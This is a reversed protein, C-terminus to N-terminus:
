DLKVLYTRDIFYYLYVVAVISGIVINIGRNLPSLGFVVLILLYIVDGFFIKSKEDAQFRLTKLILIVGGVIGLMLWASLPTEPQDQTLYIGFIGNNSIALLLYGLWSIGRTIKEKMMM